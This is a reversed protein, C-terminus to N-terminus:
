ESVMYSEIEELPKTPLKQYLTSVVVETVEDTAAIMIDDVNFVMVAVVNDAVM